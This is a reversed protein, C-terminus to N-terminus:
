ILNKLYHAGHWKLDLVSQPLCLNSYILLKNFRNQSSYKLQSEAQSLSEVHMLPMPSIEGEGFNGAQDYLRLILGKRVKLTQGLIRLSNKLPLSYHYLEWRCSNM